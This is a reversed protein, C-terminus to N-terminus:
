HYDKNVIKDKQLATIAAGDYGLAALVEETHEGYGPARGAIRLFNWKTRLPAITTHRSHDERM